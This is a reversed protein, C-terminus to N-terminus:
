QKSLSRQADEIIKVIEFGFHGNSLPETEYKISKIFEDCLNKLPESYKLHSLKKSVKVVKALNIDSPDKEFYIQSPYIYMKGNIGPHEILLTKKTGVIIIQREKKPSLFSMHIYADCKNTFKLHINSVDFRDSSFHWSGSVSVTKPAQFLYYLVSIDHPAFDWLIDCDTRGLNPGARLIDVLKIDGLSGEEIIQKAKRIEASYLYTHDVMLILKKEKALSYLIKAHNKQVTMPKEVLVHKGAKLARLTLEYHTLAPTTIIVATIRNDDLIKQYDDTINIKHDYPGLDSFASIDIDCIDTIASNYSSQMARYIKRGWFGYGILACRPPKM